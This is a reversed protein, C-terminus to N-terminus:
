KAPGDSRLSKYICKFEDTMHVLTYKEKLIPDYVLEFTLEYNGKGSIVAGYQKGGIKNVVWRGNELRGERLEIFEDLPIRIKGSKEPVTIFSM